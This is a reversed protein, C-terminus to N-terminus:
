GSGDGNLKKRKVYDIWLLRHQFIYFCAIMLNPVGLAIIALIIDAHSPADTM